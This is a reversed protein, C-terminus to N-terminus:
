RTSYDDAVVAQGDCFDIEVERRFFDDAFEALLPLTLGL